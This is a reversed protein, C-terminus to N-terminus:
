KKKVYKKMRERAEPTMITMKEFSSETMIQLLQAETLMNKLQEKDMNQRKQISITINIKSDEDFYKDWNREKMFTKIKIKLAEEINELQKRTKAVLNWKDLVSSINKEDM